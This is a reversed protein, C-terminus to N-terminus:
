LFIVRFFYNGASLRFTIVRYSKSTLVARKSLHKLKLDETDHLNNCIALTMANNRDAVFESAVIDGSCFAM